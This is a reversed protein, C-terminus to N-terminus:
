PCLSRLKQALAREEEEWASKLERVLAAYEYVWDTYAGLVKRSDSYREHLIQGAGSRWADDLGKMVADMMQLAQERQANMYMLSGSHRELMDFSIEIKRM